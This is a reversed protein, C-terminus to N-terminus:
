NFFLKFDNTLENEINIKNKLTLEESYGEVCFNTITLDVDNLSYEKNFIHIGDYEILEDIDVNVEVDASYEIGNIEFSVYHKFNNIGDNVANEIVADIYYVEDENWIINTLNKM